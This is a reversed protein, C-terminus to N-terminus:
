RKLRIVESRSCKGAQGVPCVRYRYRGGPSVEHDTWFKGSVTVPLLVGNRYIDVKGAPIGNWALRVKRGNANASLQLNPRAATEPLCDGWAAAASRGSAFTATVEMCAAEGRLELFELGVEYDRENSPWYRLTRVRIGNFMGVLYDDPDQADVHLSADYSGGHEAHYPCENAGGAGFSSWPFASSSKHSYIFNTWEMDFYPPHVPYGRSDPVDGPQPIPRLKRDLVEVDVSQLDYRSSLLTVTLTTALDQGSPVPVDLSISVDTEASYPLLRLSHIADRSWSSHPDFSPADRVEFHMHEFGSSSAGTYGLLQGKEVTEGAGVVWQSIHLYLSHYCGAPVCSQYGPRYHRLKVLPDSYAPDVGAIQVLGGTVAFFPTGTPTAIDLGRHFDYRNAGSYLPRPGFTSSLPHDSYRPDGFRVSPCPDGPTWNGPPSETIRGCLPWAAQPDFEAAQVLGVTPGTCLCVAVFIVLGRASSFPMIGANM